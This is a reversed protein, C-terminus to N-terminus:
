FPFVIGYDKEYTDPDEFSTSLIDENTKICVFEMEPATYVNKKM